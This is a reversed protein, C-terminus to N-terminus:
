EELEPFDDEHVREAVLAYLADHVKRAHGNGGKEVDDPYDIGNTMKLFRYCRDLLYANDKKQEETLHNWWCCGVVSNSSNHKYQGPHCSCGCQEPM